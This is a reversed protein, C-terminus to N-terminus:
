TIASIVRNKGAISRLIAKDMNGGVTDYIFTAQKQGNRVIRAVAQENDGPVWSRDNFWLYNARTLNVGTSFSDITAVLYDDEGDQFKKGIEARRAPSIEGTIPVVGLADAIYKCSDKHHSFIVLPKIEMDQIMAVTYPAKALAAKAKIRSDVSGTNKFVEFAEMVDKGVVAKETPIEIFTVPPLSICDSLKKRFYKGKLLTKLKEENQLGVWKTIRVLRDKVYKTITHAHSFEAYFSEAYEYAKSVDIGSTNAPNYSVLCLPSYYEYVGNKIPTGTLLLCYEVMSEFVLKHFAATRNTELNKLYHAEDFAVVDAWEFLEAMENHFSYSTIIVDVDVPYECSAATSYVSVIAEPWWMAVENAWNSKLYSPCIVLLKKKKRSALVIPVATKGTGMDMALICYPHLTAYNLAEEQHPYLQLM